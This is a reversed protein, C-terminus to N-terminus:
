PCPLVRSPLPYRRTFTEALAKRMVLLRDANTDANDVSLLYPEMLDPFLRLNRRWTELCHEFAQDPTWKAPSDQM